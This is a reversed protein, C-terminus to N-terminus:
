DLRFVRQAYLPRGDADATSEFLPALVEKWRLEDANAQFPDDIAPATASRRVVTIVLDDRRFISYDYAGRQKLGALVGPFTEAHWRDYEPGAGPKLHYVFCEQRGDDPWVPTDSEPHASM